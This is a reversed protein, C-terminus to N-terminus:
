ILCLGFLWLPRIIYFKWWGYLRGESHFRWSCHLLFRHLHWQLLGIIVQNENNIIVYGDQLLNGVLHFRIFKQVMLHWQIRERTSYLLLLVWDRQVLYKKQQIIGDFELTIPCIKSLTKSCLECELNVEVCLEAKIKVFGVWVLILEAYFRCMVLKLKLSMWYWSWLFKKIIFNLM